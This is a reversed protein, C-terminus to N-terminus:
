LQGELEDKRRLVQKYKRNQAEEDEGAKKGVQQYTQVLSANSLYYQEAEKQHQIRQLEFLKQDKEKVQQSLDEIKEDYTVVAKKFDGKTRELLQELYRKAKKLHSLENKDNTQYYEENGSKRSTYVNTTKISPKMTGKLSKEKEHKCALCEDTSQNTSQYKISHQTARKYFNDSSNAKSLTM